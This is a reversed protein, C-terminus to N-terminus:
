FKCLLFSVLTHHYWLGIKTVFITTCSNTMSVSLRDEMKTGYEGTSINTCSGVTEDDYDSMYVPVDQSPFFTTQKLLYHNNKQHRHPHYGQLSLLILISCCVNHISDSQPNFRM